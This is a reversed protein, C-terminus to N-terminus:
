DEEEDFDEPYKSEAEDYGYMDPDYVEAKCVPVYRMVTLILNTEMQQRIRFLNYARSFAREFSEMPVMIELALKDVGEQVEPHTKV